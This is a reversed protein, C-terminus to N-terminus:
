FLDVKGAEISHQRVPNEKELEEKVCIIDEQIEDLAELISEKDGSNNIKLAEINKTTRSLLTEMKEVRRRSHGVLQQVIDEFQLCRVVTFVNKNIKDTIEETIKAIHELQILKQETELEALKKSALQVNESQKAIDDKLENFSEDITQASDRVLLSIQNLEDNLAQHERIILDSIDDILGYLFERFESQENSTKNMPYM